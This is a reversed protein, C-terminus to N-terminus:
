LFIFHNVLQVYSLISLLSFLSFSNRCGDTDEEGRTIWL